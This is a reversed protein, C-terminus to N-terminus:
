FRQSTAAADEGNAEATNRVAAAGGQQRL